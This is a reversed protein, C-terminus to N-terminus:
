MSRCGEAAPVSDLAKSLLKLNEELQTLGEVVMQAPTNTSDYAAAVSFSDEFEQVLFGIGFMTLRAEQAVPLLSSIDSFTTASLHQRPLFNFYMPTESLQLDSLLGGCQAAYRLWGFGSGRHPVAELYRGLERYTDALTAQKPVSVPYSYALWGVTFSDNIDDFINRGSVVLRCPVTIISLLTSMTFICCALFVDHVQQTRRGCLGVKYRYFTKKLIQIGSSNGTNRRVQEIRIAPKVISRWYEHEDDYRGENLATYYYQLWDSFSVTVPLDTELDRLLTDLEQTLVNMSMDDVILHNAIFYIYLSDDANFIIWAYLRGTELSIQSRYQGIHNIFDGATKHHSTVDIIEAAPILSFRQHFRNNELGIWNVFFVDHRRLLTAIARSVTSLGCKTLLLVELNNLKVRDPSSELLLLEQSPSVRSIRNNQQQRRAVPTPPANQILSSMTEITDATVLDKIPIDAKFAEMIKLRLTILNISNGGVDTYHDTPAIHRQQLLDSWIQHLKHGVTDDISAPRRESPIQPIANLLAQRDIKRNSTLPIRDIVQFVSPIMHSPLTKAIADRIQKPLDHKPASTDDAVVFAILRETGDAIVVAESVQPCKSIAAEVELLEIRFGRIKVQYDSRSLYQMCGNSLRRVIDGSKYLRDSPNSSFPDPIFKESTLQPQNLYGLAVGEGSIHLEGVNGIAVETLNENLVYFRANALPPGICVETERTMEKASCWVTTETPGYVNSLTVGPLSLLKNKLTPMMSEGGCLAKLPTHPKWHNSLLLQWTAPTAQM